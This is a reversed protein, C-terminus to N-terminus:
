WGVGWMLLLMAGWIVLVMTVSGLFMTFLDWKEEATLKDTKEMAESGILTLTPKLITTM